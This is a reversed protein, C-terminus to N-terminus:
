AGGPALGFTRRMTRVAGIAGDLATLPLDRFGQQQAAVLVLVLESWASYLGPPNPGIPGIQTIAAATTAITVFIETFAEPACDAALLAKLEATATGLHAVKETLRDTTQNMSKILDYNLGTPAIPSEVTAM